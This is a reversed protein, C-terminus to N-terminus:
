GRSVEPMLWGKHQWKIGFQDQVLWYVPAAGPVPPKHNSQNKWDIATQNM